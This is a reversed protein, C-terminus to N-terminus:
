PQIKYIVNISHAESYVNSNLPTLYELSAIMTKLILVSM